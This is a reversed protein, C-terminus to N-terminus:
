AAECWAYQAGGVAAVSSAAAVVRAAEGPESLPVTFLDEALNDELGSLLYIRARDAANAWATAALLDPPRFQRLPRLVDAPEEARSLEALGPPPSGALDTLVVIKGGREVLRRAADLARATAAWRDPSGPAVAVLVVESRVPARVRWLEDLLERGRRLVAETGGALAVATGGDAAPITQVTFQTGLLWGVEDALQRLPRDDEPGLEAHGQGRAKLVADEDSLGPVFVSNAGAVGLLPDFRLAGCSVVVDAELVPRALYVRDGAATSALYGCAEKEEPDHRTFSAAEAAVRPLGGRPDGGFRGDAAGGYGPGAGRILALRQPDVGAKALEGWVGGVVAAPDTLDPSLALTVRDDPIVSRSLSPFEIPNALADRVAAVPDAVSPPGPRCVTLSAGASLPFAGDAGAAFTLATAAPAEPM